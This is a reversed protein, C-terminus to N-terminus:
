SCLDVVWAWARFWGSQPTDLHRAGACLGQIERAVRRDAVPGDAPLRRLGIHNDLWPSLVGAGGITRIGAYLMAIHVFGYLRISRSAQRLEDWESTAVTPIRM